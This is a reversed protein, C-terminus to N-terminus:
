TNTKAINNNNNTETSQLSKLKAIENANKNFFGVIEFPKVDITIEGDDKYAAVFRYYYLQNIELEYTNATVWNDNNIANLYNKNEVNNYDM